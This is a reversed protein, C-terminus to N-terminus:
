QTGENRTQMEVDGGKDGANGHPHPLRKAEIEALVFIFIGSTALMFCAFALLSFATALVDCWQKKFDQYKGGIPTPGTTGCNDANKINRGSTITENLDSKMTLLHDNIQVLLAQQEPAEGIMGSILARATNIRSITDNLADLSTIINWKLQRVTINFPTPDLTRITTADYTTPSTISNLTSFMSATNAADYSLSASTVLQVSQNAAALPTTVQSFSTPINPFVPFTITNTFGLVDSVNLADLISANALCAQMWKGERISVNLTDSPNVEAQDLWLCSDGFTAAFPLHVAFLAWMGL